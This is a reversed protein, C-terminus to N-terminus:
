NCFTKIFNTGTAWRRSGIIMASWLDFTIRKVFGPQTTFLSSTHPPLNWCLPPLRSWDLPFGIYWSKVSHNLSECFRIWFQILYQLYALQLWLYLSTGNWWLVLDDEVVVWAQSVIEMKNVIPIIIKQSMEFQKNYYFHNYPIVSFKVKAWRIWNKSVHNKEETCTVQM